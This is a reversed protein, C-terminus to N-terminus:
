PRWGWALAVMVLCACVLLALVALSWILRGRAVQIHEPTPQWAPRQLRASEGSLQPAPVLGDNYRESLDTDLSTDQKSHGPVTQAANREVRIIIFSFLRLELSEHGTDPKQYM